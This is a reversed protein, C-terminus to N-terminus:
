RQEYPNTQYAAGSGANNNMLADPRTSITFHRQEIQLLRDVSEDFEKQPKNSTDDSFLHWNTRDGKRFHKAMTGSRGTRNIGERCAFGTCLFVPTSAM